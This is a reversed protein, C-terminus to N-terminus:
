EEEDRLTRAQVAVGIAALVLLLLVSSARELPLGQVVLVAGVIASLFVLAWEFLAITLIAGPVAGLFFGITLVIRADIGLGRLVAIVLTGGAIFGAVFVAARQLLTAIFAGLFGAALAVLLVTLPSAGGLLNGALRFAALFGAAGVFLWFLRRGALLSALGVVIAVANAVTGFPGPM